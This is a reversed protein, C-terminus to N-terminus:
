FLEQQEPDTPENIAVDEVEAGPFMATVAGVVDDAKKGEKVNNHCAVLELAINGIMVPTIDQGEKKNAIAIDKAIGMYCEVMIDRQKAREFAIRDETAQAASMPKTVGITTAVVGADGKGLKKAGSIVEKGNYLRTTIDYQGAGTFLDYCRNQKTISMKSGDDFCLTKYMGFKGEKAEIGTINKIM